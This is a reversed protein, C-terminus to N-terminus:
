GRRSLARSLAMRWDRVWGLRHEKVGSEREEPVDLLFPYCYRDGLATLGMITCHEECSQASQNLQNPILSYEVKGGRDPWWEDAVVLRVLEIVMFSAVNASFPFVNQNTPGRDTELGKIYTPDDLSGDMEMTVDSSTYQGDCRLCRRQPGAVTVSWFANALEGGLKTEIHIGGSIVPICHAYAMRNVLDKPLPRDVASFLLDCDLASQYASRQQLPCLHTEVSFAEATANRRLHQAVLNAKFEGVDADGAYLLRDLNHREVRDPDILVLDEVGMRALSEAVMCGVSGAGVVGIKLRSLDNQRAEGWTDTTRLLARRRKPPPYLRDNYTVRLRAGVTKVKACWSRNLKQGDWTWFRASWAEDTGLTLGVLPLGTARSPFGIRDREAVIDPASMDQWGDSLHNHMFALGVGQRCALRLARALYGPEFSANRHLHREGAEPLVLEFILASHRNAGTAPRWLAFCLEEQPSGSRVHRLLHECAKQHVGETLVAHRNM